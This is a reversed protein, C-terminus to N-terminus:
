VPPRNPRLTGVGHEHGCQHCTGHNGLLLAGPSLMATGQRSRYRFTGEAVVAVCFDGHREEYPRDQPGNSCVVDHARWGKGEFLKRM